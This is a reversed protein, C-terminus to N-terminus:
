MKKQQMDISVTGNMKMWFPKENMNNLNAVSEIVLYFQCSTIIELVFM